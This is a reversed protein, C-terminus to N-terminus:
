FSSQRIDVNHKLAIQFSNLSNRDELLCNVKSVFFFIKSILIPKQMFSLMKNPFTCSSYMSYVCCSFIECVAHQGKQLMINKHSFSIVNKSCAPYSPGAGQEKTVYNSQCYCSCISREAILKGTPLSLCSSAVARPCLM